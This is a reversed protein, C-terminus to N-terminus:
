RKDEANISSAGALKEIEALYLAQDTRAREYALQFELLARHADIVALFDSRGAAFAQQAVNLAQEAKPLLSDRYLATRSEADRRKYLVLELEATLRAVEDRHSYM